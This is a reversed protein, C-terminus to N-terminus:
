PGASHDHINGRVLAEAADKAAHNLPNAPEGPLKGSHKYREVNDHVRSHMGIRAAMGLGALAGIFAGAPVNEPYDPATVYGAVAGIVAGTLAAKAARKLAQRM